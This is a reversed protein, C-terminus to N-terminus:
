GKITYKGGYDKKPDWIEWRSCPFVHKNREYWRRDVIKGPHSEDKEVRSDIPGMRIDSHVDFSFLPGSKGRAKTEILDYFTIDVPLMLDEKVYILSDAGSVERFETQLVKAAAELFGGITTGKTVTIEKRHGSGDWYSYVILLKEKKILEQKESWEKKLRREEAALTAARDRDPLFSTDVDANKKTKKLPPASSEEEEEEGEDGTAFSLKAMMKKKKLKDKKLKSEDVKKEKVVVVDADSDRREKAERLRKFDAATVLGVTAERFACEKDAALESGQFKDDIRRAGRESDAKLAAKKAEFEAQDQERKKSLAAAASGGVAGEATVTGADPRSFNATSMPYPHLGLLSHM